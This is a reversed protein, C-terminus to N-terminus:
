LRYVRVGYPELTDVFRDNVVELRRADFLSEAAAGTPGRPHVEVLVASTGVNVVIVYTRGAWERVLSRVDGFANVRPEREPRDGELVVPALVELERNVPGLAAFLAPAREELNGEWAYSFYMIGTAGGVLAQYVMNRLEVPTPYRAPRRPGAQAFAQIVAWVSKQPGVLARSRSVHGWVVSLPLNPVPYPDVAFIDTFPVFRTGAEPSVHVTVIPHEPDLERVLAYGQQVRDLVGAEPEDYLYWALLAPHARFKRVHERVTPLFPKTGRYADALEVVVRMGLRQAEDLTHTTGSGPMAWVHAVTFGMERLQAFRETPAYYIGVPLLARGEVRLGRPTAVVQGHSPLWTGSVLAVAVLMLVSVTLRVNM